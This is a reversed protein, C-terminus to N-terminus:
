GGDASASLPTFSSIASILTMGLNGAAASITSAAKAAIM